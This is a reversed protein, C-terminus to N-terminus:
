FPAYYNFHSRMKPEPANSIFIEEVQGAFMGSNFFVKQKWERLELDVDRDIVSKNEKYIKAAVDKWDDRKVLAQAKEDINKMDDSVDDCKKLADSYFDKTKGMKDDGTKQDGDIYAEMAEYLTNTLDDNVTYCSLIYDRKDKNTVGYFWGSVFQAPALSDRKTPEPVPEPQPPEPKPSPTDRPPALGIYQMTYGAFMGSNFHVGKEWESVELSGSKEIEDKYKKMNADIFEKADSRALVDDEYKKLAAFDDTIKDCSGMAKEFLPSATQWEKEASDNDGKMYDAMARDITANLSADNKFCDVIYDRKDKSTIGYLYGASFQAAADMSVATLSSQVLHSLM